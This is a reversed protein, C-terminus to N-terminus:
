RKGLQIKHQKPNPRYLVAIHGITTVLDANAEEAISAIMQRRQLRDGANVRLKILEHHSLAHDIESKVNPTLGHQGIIIVPKLAHALGKLFQKQKPSLPM